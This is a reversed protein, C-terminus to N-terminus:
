NDLPYPGKCKQQSTIVMAKKKDVNLHMNNVDGWELYINLSSQLSLVIQNWDAGSKYLVCDDAFM